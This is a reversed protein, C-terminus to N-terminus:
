LFPATEPPSPKQRVSFLYPLQSVEARAGAEFQGGGEVQEPVGRSLLIAGIVSFLTLRPEDDVAVHVWHVIGPEPAITPVLHLM